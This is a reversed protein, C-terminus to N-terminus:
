TGVGKSGKTKSLNTPSVLMLNVIEMSTQRIDLKVSALISRLTVSKIVRQAVMTTPVNQFFHLM